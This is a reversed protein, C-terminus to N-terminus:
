VPLEFHVLCVFEIMGDELTKWFPVLLDSSVWQASVHPMLMARRHVISGTLGSFRMKRDHSTKAGMDEHLRLQHRATRVLDSGMSVSESMRQETIRQVAGGWRFQDGTWRQMGVAKRDSM